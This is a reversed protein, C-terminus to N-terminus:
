SPEDKPLNVLLALQSLIRDMHIALGAFDKWTKLLPRAAGTLESLAKSGSIDKKKFIKDLSDLAPKAIPQAPDDEATKDQQDAIQDIADMIGKLADPSVGEARCRYAMGLSYYGNVGEHFEGDTGFFGNKLYDQPKIALMESKEM